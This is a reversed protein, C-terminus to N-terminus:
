EGGQTVLCVEYRSRQSDLEDEWASGCHADRSSATSEGGEGAGGEAMMAPEQEEAAAVGLVSPEPSTAEARLPSAKRTGRLTRKEAELDDAQM